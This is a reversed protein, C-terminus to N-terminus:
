LNRVPSTRASHHDHGSTGRMEPRTGSGAGSVLGGARATKRLRVLGATASEVPTRGGRRGRFRQHTRAVASEHLAVLGIQQASPVRPGPRGTDVEVRAHAPGTQLDERRGVTGGEVGRARHREAGRELTARQVLAATELADVPGPHVDVPLEEVSRRRSYTWSRSPAM